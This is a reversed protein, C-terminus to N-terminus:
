IFTDCNIVLLSKQQTRNIVNWLKMCNDLQGSTDGMTITASCCCNLSKSIIISFLVKSFQVLKKKKKLHVAPIKKKLFQYHFLKMSISVM